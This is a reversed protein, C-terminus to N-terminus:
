PSGDEDVQDEGIRDADGADEDAQDVDTPQKTSATDAVASPTLAPMAAPMDTPNPPLMLDVIREIQHDIRADVAGQGFRLECGGRAVESDERLRITTLHAFEELLQPVAEQLAPRDDPHILVTVELPQLVHELAAAVQDVIVTPDVEIVRHVIREAFQLAFDVVADRSQAELEARMAQWQAALDSWAQQVAQLQVQMQTFAEARGQRRGEEVGQQLGEDRGQASAQQHAAAALQEAQQQAQAIIRDARQRAAAVLREGQRALDGLDLVVAERLLPAASNNKLVPM